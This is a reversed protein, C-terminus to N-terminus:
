GEECCRQPSAQEGWIGAGWERGPDSESTEPERLSCVSPWLCFRAMEVTRGWAGGPSTPLPSVRLSPWSQLMKGPVHDKTWNAGPGRSMHVLSCDAQPHSGASASTHACAPQAGKLLHM